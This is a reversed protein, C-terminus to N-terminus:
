EEEAADAAAAAAEEKSKEYEEETVEKWRRDAYQVNFFCVTPVKEKKQDSGTCEQLHRDKHREKVIVGCARCKVRKSHSSRFILIQLCGDYKKESEM